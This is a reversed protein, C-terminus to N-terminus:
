SNKEQVKSLREQIQKVKPQLHSKPFRYQIIELLRLSENYDSAALSNMAMAFYIDAALPHQPYVELFTTQLKDAEKMKNLRRAAVWTIYIIQPRYPAFTENSEYNLGNELVDEYAQGEYLYKLHLMAAKSPDYKDEPEATIVKKVFQTALKGHGSVALVDALQFRLANIGQLDNKSEKYDHAAKLCMYATPYDKSKQRSNGAIMLYELYTPTKAEATEVTLMKNYFHWATTPRRTNLAFQESRRMYQKTHLWSPLADIQEAKWAQDPTHLFQVVLCLEIIEASQQKDIEVFYKGREAVFQGAARASTNYYALLLKLQEDTGPVRPLQEAFTDAYEYIISRATITLPKVDPVGPMDVIGDLLSEMSAMKASQFGEVIMQGVKDILQLRQEFIQWERAQGHEQKIKDFEPQLQELAKQQFQNFAAHEDAAVATVATYCILAIALTM